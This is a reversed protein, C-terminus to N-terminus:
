IKDSIVTCIFYALYKGSSNRLSVQPSSTFLFSLICTLFYGSKFLSILSAYLSTFALFIRGEIRDICNPTVRSSFVCDNSRAVWDASILKLREASMTKDSRGISLNFITFDHRNVAIAAGHSVKKM